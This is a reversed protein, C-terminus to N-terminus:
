FLINGLSWLLKWKFRILSNWFCPQSVIILIRFDMSLKLFHKIVLCCMILDSLSVLCLFREAIIVNCGNATCAIDTM